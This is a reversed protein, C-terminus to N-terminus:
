VALALQQNSTAPQKETVRVKVKRVALLDAYVNVPHRVMWEKTHKNYRMLDAKRLLARLKCYEHHKMSLIDEMYSDPGNLHQLDLYYVRILHSYKAIDNLTFLGTSPMWHLIFDTAAWAENQM